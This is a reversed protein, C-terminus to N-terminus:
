QTCTHLKAALMACIRVNRMHVLWQQPPTYTYKKKGALFNIVTDTGKIQVHHGKLDEMKWTCCTCVYM